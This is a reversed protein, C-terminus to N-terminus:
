RNYIWKLLADQVAQANGANAHNVIFVVVVRRGQADLVYGAISRVGSLSGTKLHAQGAVEAGSLRKKMTGDVAALPLSAILEPMVPSRFATLLLQGLNKASIREIRSLGSGNELVLEPFSLGKSALWQRIVRDAKDTTAPAGAGVAGLTLFLQRAMVNNSFKNIDRAIEAFTPSQVSAILRADAGAAGDRVGGNFTGGLERWLERFLALVYQGHGLVSYNRVREGCGAAFTGNFALRAAAAGGQADLKLRGVWEGCPANDLVLNNVIQVQPLPPEAVIRVARAELEPIFQLRVAKFNVLLADPGTNYPRTPHDDFRSPDFDEAAFYGRDLVLDGRIERVGRGRLSRLLLWFNELTLKPDGYGKIVLDGALVGQSLAGGAYAETVWTYAPGLLELGAYTTLLKIGSAPNLAREAGVSILPREAGLEHVYFAAAGEPIGARVLARAVPEPLTASQAQAAPQALLAALAVIAGLLIKMLTDPKTPELM